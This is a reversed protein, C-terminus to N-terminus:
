MYMTVSVYAFMRLKVVIDSLNLIDAQKHQRLDGGDICVTLHLNVEDWNLLINLTPYTSLLESYM